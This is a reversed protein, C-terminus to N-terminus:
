EAEIGLIRESEMPYEWEPDAILDPPQTQILWGSLRQARSLLRGNV